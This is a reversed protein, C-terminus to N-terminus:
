RARMLRFNEGRRSIILFTPYDFRAGVTREFIHMIEKNTTCTKEKRAIHKSINSWELIDTWGTRLNLNFKKEEIEKQFLIM